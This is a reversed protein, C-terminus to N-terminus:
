KSTRITSRVFEDLTSCAVTDVTAGRSRAQIEFKRAYYADAIRRYVYGCSLGDEATWSDFAFGGARTLVPGVVVHM